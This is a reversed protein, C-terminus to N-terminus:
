ARDSVAAVIDSALGVPDDASTDLVLDAQGVMWRRAELYLPLHELRWAQAEDSGEIRERLVAEPADLVVHFPQQGASTLRELIETFYSENLVSQPAVLHQGTQVSVEHLTAAVLPRWAPLDQFDDVEEALDPLAACLFHGVMEPDFVRWQPRVAVLAGATSTKGGGFPGNLWLIVRRGYRNPSRSYRNGRRFAICLPV